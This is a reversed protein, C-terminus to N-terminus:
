RVTLGFKAHWTTFHNANHRHPEHILTLTIKCYAVFLNKNVIMITVGAIGALLGLTQAIQHLNLGRKKQVATHTPQLILVGEIFFAATFVQLTPHWKFLGAPPAAWVIILTMLALM